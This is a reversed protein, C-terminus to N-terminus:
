SRLECSSVATQRGVATHPFISNVATRASIRAFASVLKKRQPRAGRLSAGLASCQSYSGFTRAWASHRQDPPSSAHRTRWTSDVQRPIKYKVIHSIAAAAAASTHVRLAARRTRQEKDGPGLGRWGVTTQGRLPAGGPSRADPPSAVDSHLQTVMWSM